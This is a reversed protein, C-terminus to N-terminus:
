GYADRIEVTVTVYKESRNQYADEVSIKVKVKVRILKEEDSSGASEQYEKEVSEVHLLNTYFSEEEVSVNSTVVRIASSKAQELIEEETNSGRTVEATMNEQSIRIVPSTLDEELDETDKVYEKTWNETQSYKTDAAEVSKWPNEEDPDTPDWGKNPSDSDIKIAEPKGLPGPDESDYIEVSTGKPCNDILWKADAVALRVCGDSASEGLKNYEETKLTSKNQKSYPVSHFLFSGTIRYAYQGYVDGYLYRWDYKDSTQFVGLPTNGRRGVSCVMAKVPVTYQGQADKRYVTVCNALRNVKIYYPFPDDEPIEEYYSEMSLNGKNPEQAVLETESPEPESVEPKPKKLMESESVEPEKEELETTKMMLEKDNKMSGIAKLQKMGLICVLLLVASIILCFFTIKMVRKNM